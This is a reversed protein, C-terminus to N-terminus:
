RLRLCLCLTCHDSNGEGVRQRSSLVSFQIKDLIMLIVRYYPDGEYDALEKKDNDRNDDDQDSKSEGVSQQSSLVSFQIKDVLIVVIM